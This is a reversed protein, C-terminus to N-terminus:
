RHGVSCGLTQLRPRRSGALLGRIASLVCIVTTILGLRAHASCRTILDFLKAYNDFTLGSLRYPDAIRTSASCRWM